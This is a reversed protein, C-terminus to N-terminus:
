NIDPKGKKFSQYYYSLLYNYKFHGGFLKFYSHFKDLIVLFSPSSQKIRNNHNIKYAIIVYMSLLKLRTRSKTVGLVTAWWDERDMPNKDTLCSYQLSNGNKRWPIKRVKPDFEHRKCRRCQYAPQKGSAHGSFGM